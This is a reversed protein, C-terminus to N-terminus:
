DHKRRRSPRSPLRGGPGELPWDDLLPSRRGAQQLRDPPPLREGQGHIIGEYLGRMQGFHLAEEMVARIEPRSVEAALDFAAARVKEEATQSLQRLLQLLLLTLPSGTQYENDKLTDLLCRAWAAEGVNGPTVAAFRGWAELCLQFEELRRLMTEDGRSAFFEHLAALMREAEEREGRLYALRAREYQLYARVVEPALGGGEAQEAMELDREAEALLLTRHPDDQGDIAQAQDLLQRALLYHRSTPREAPPLPPYFAEISESLALRTEPDGALRYLAPRGGRKKPKDPHPRSTLLGEKKMRHLETRVSEPNLGTIRVMEAVTFERLLLANHRVKFKVQSPGTRQAM